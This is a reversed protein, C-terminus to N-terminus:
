TSRSCQLRMRPLANTYANDEGCASLLFAMGLALGGM